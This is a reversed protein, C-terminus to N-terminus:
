KGAGASNSKGDPPMADVKTQADDKAQVQKLENISFGGLNSRKNLAGYKQVLTVASHIKKFTDASCNEQAWEEFPALVYSAASCIFVGHVWIEMWFTPSTVHQIVSQQTQPDFM